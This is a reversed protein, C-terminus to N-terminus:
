QTSRHDRKDTAYAMTRRKGILLGVGALGFAVAGGLAFLWWAPASESAAIGQGTNPPGTVFPPINAVTPTPAAPPAITEPVEVCTRPSPGSNGERNGFVVYYCYEGAHEFRLTDVIEGPVTLEREDWLLSIPNVSAPNRWVMLRSVALEQRVTEASPRVCHLVEPPPESPGPPATSSPIPSQGVTSTVYIMGVLGAAAVVMARPLIMMM